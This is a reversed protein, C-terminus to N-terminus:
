ETTNVPDFQNFSKLFRDIDSFEVQPLVKVTFAEFIRATLYTSELVRPVSKRGIWGRGVAM